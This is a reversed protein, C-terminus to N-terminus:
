NLNTMVSPRHSWAAERLNPWDAGDWEAPVPVSGCLLFDAAQSGPMLRARDLTWDFIVEDGVDLDL